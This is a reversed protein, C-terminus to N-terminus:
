QWADPRSTQDVASRILGLIQQGSATANTQSEVVYEAGATTVFSGVPVADIDPALIVRRTFVRVRDGNRGSGSNRWAVRESYVTADHTTSTETGLREIAVAGADAHHHQSTQAATRYARSLRSM